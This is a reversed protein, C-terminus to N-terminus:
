ISNVNLIIFFKNRLLQWQIELALIKLLKQEKGYNYSSNGAARPAAVRLHWSDSSRATTLHLLQQLSYFSFGV